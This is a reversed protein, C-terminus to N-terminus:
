IVACAPCYGPTGSPIRRHRSSVMHAFDGSNREVGASTSKQLAALGKPQPHPSDGQSKALPFYLLTQTQPLDSLALIGASLQLFGINVWPSSLYRQAAIVAQVRSFHSTVPACNFCCDMSLVNGVNILSSPSNQRTKVRGSCCAEYTLSRIIQRQSDDGSIEPQLAPM